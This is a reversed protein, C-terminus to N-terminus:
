FVTAFYKVEIVFYHEEMKWSLLALALLTEGLLYQETVNVAWIRYV